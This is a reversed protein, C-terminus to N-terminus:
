TPPRTQWLDAPLSVDVSSPLHSDPDAVVEKLLAQLVICIM